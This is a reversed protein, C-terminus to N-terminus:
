SEKTRNINYILTIQIDCFMKYLSDIILRKKKKINSISISDWTKGM